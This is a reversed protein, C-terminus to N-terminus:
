NSTVDVTVVNSVGSSEMVETSSSLVLNIGSGGGGGGGAGRPPPPPSGSACDKTISSGPPMKTVDISKYKKVFSSKSGTVSSNLVTVLPVGFGLITGPETTVNSADATFIEFSAETAVLNVNLFGIYRDSTFSYANTVLLLEWFYLRHTDLTPSTSIEEPDVISLCGCTPTTNM